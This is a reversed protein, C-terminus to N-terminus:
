YKAKSAKVSKVPSVNKAIKVAPSVNKAPYVIKPEKYVKAKVVKTETVNSYPSVKAKM